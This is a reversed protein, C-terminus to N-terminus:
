QTKKSEIKSIHQTQMESFYETEYYKKLSSGHQIWQCITEQDKDATHYLAWCKQSNEYIFTDLTFIYICIFRSHFSVCM